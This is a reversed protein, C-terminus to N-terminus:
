AGSVQRLLRAVPDHGAGPFLYRDSVENLVRRVRVFADGLSGFLSDLGSCMTAHRGAAMRYGAAGMEDYYGLGPAGRRERRMEVRDPFLGAQWLAHDGLHQPADLVGQAAAAWIDALYAGSHEGHDDIHLARPGIGFEVVLTAVYDASQRYHAATADPLGHERLRRLLTAYLLLPLRASALTASEWLFGIQFAPDEIVDDVGAGELRELLLHRAPAPHREAASGLLDLDLAGFAARTRPAIM